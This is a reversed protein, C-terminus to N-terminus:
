TENVISSGTSDGHVNTPYTAKPPMSYTAQIGYLYGPMMMPIGTTYYLTILSLGLAVQLM